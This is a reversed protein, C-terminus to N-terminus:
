KSIPELPEGLTETPAEALTELVETNETNEPALVAETISPVTAAAAADIEKLKQVARSISLSQALGLEKVIARM